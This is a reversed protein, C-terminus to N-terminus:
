VEYGEELVPDNKKLFDELVNVGTSRHPAPDNDPTGVENISKMEIDLFERIVGRLKEEQSERKQKVTKIAHRISERLINEQKSKM